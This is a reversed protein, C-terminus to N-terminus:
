ETDSEDPKDQLTDVKLHVGTIRTMVAQIVIEWLKPGQLGVIGAAAFGLAEPWGLWETVWYLCVGMFGSACVDAVRRQWPKPEKEQFVRVLGGGSGMLGQIVLALYDRERM